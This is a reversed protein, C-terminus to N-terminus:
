AKLRSNEPDFPSEPMVTAPHRRGLISIEVAQGTQALDPRVMALALSKGTRWGYGGSTARGVLQNGLYLPENGRADADTIDDVELTVFSWSFGKAQRDALADAGIFDGKNLHVFRDLGSELAAYEISLERPILRYSKEIRMADMARIGFPKIGFDAGAAMLGDFIQNQMEIPHHLEWGLEGVFNLRLAHATAGGVNIQQGSLWKFADNSLDADTLKALVERSKPGALVLVGMATSAPEFRVSGDGPLLKQLIDHDHREFAGASVLYFTEPAMRYVTYESRVGGNASLLHCLGVRGPRSPIRNAFLRDLWDAAGPGRIFCKAFASMDLLGVNDHVNRVEVGVHEFYNSRRFSWKEVIRGDELPPAHNHNLLVNGSGLSDTDLKYDKPAFWNAREWGYVSGFVGGLAKLREYCPSTKLPRGASREEDPYHTTFVNAYAEENKAKLYGRTAYPGFRRPDVGMMDITPEGGLIWEALQWGAGGAATM